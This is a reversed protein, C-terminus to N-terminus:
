TQGRFTLFALFIVFINEHIKSNHNIPTTAVWIFPLLIFPFNQFGFWWTRQRIEITCVFSISYLKFPNRTCRIFAINMEVYLLCVHRLIRRFSKKQQTAFLNLLLFIWQKLLKNRKTRQANYSDTKKKRKFEFMGDDYINVHM